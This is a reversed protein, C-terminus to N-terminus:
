RTLEMSKQKAKEIAEFIIKEFNNKELSNIAAETTGGPSTVKKRFLEPSVVEHKSMMQGAGRVTQSVLLRAEDYSLGLKEGAKIMAEALYFVYAPGSGSVATVIDFKNEELEITKGVAGLINKIVKKDDDKMNKNCTFASMGELVMVPTNPMVRTIKIKNGLISEIYNVTIGAMISVIIKDDTINNKLNNLVQEADKPKVSIVIIDSSSLYNSYNKADSLVCNSVGYEKKMYDLREQNIDSAFINSTKFTNNKVIGSILAEGMNGSGIFFINMNKMINEM